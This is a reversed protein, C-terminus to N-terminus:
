LRGIARKSRRQFRWSLLAAATVCGALIGQVLGAAGGNQVVSLWYGLPVMILWFAILFIATAPWVDAMGRLAGTLVAQM